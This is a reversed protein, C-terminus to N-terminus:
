TQKPTTQPQEALPKRTSVANKEKRDQAQVWKFWAQSQMTIEALRESLLKFQGASVAKLEYLLRLLAWQVEIELLLRTLHRGKQITGNAIVVCKLLKISSECVEQGLDHKITKPFGARLRYMERTYIFVAQYLPLHQTRAM